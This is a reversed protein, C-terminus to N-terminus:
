GHTHCGLNASQSQWYCQDLVGQTTSCNRVKFKCFICLHCHMNYQTPQKGARLHATKNQNCADKCQRCLFVPCCEAHPCAPTPHCGWAFSVATRHQTAFLRLLLWYEIASRHSMSRCTTDQPHIPTHAHRCCGRCQVLAQLMVPLAAEQHM